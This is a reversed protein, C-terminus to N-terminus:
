FGSRNTIVEYLYLCVQNIISHAPRTFLHSLLIPESGKYVAINSRTGVIIVMGLLRCM